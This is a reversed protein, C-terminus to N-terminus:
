VVSTLSVLRYNMVLSRDGGKHVPVMMARKWDATLTGNNMTIDLLQVLYPIMAEGGLKLIEGSISDPGVSKNKRIVAVRKRIIKMDITLPEGSNTCQIRQINGDSIFVSSYYYHFCNFTKKCKESLTKNTVKNQGAAPEM